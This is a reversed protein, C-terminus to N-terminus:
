AAWRRPVTFRSCTPSNVTNVGPGRCAEVARDIRAAMLMPLSFVHRRQLLESTFDTSDHGTIRDVPEHNSTSIDLKGHLSPIRLSGLSGSGSMVAPLSVGLHVDAAPKFRNACRRLWTEHLPHGALGCFQCNPVRAPALDTFWKEVAKPTTRFRGRDVVEGEENLTCYHSWVDGLDIGITMETKFHRRPVEAILRLPGRNAVVVCRAVTSRLDSRLCQVTAPDLSRRSHENNLARRYGGDQVRHRVSNVSISVKHWTRQSRRLPGTPLRGSARV